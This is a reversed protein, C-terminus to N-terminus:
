DGGTIGSISVVDSIPSKCEKKESKVSGDPYYEVEKSGSGIVFNDGFYACSISSMFILILILAPILPKRKNWFFWSILRVFSYMTNRKWRPVKLVKMAELFIQDAKKRTIMVKVGDKIYFKTHYLYDHVGAAAAYKGLQGGIIRWAFKPISAGDTIFGKPVKVIENSDESGVYYEFDNPVEYLAYNPPIAVLRPLKTFSSM